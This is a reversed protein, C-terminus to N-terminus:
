PRPGKAFAYPSLGKHMDPYHFSSSLLLHCVVFFKYFRNSRHFFIEGLPIRIHHLLCLQNVVRAYFSTHYDFGCAICDPFIDLILKVPSKLFRSHLIYVKRHKNRLTQKLLLLIMHFAKRRLHRPHSVATQLRQLLTKAYPRSRLRQETVKICIIHMGVPIQRLYIILPTGHHAPFLRCTREQTGPFEQPLLSM